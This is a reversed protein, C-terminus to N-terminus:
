YSIACSVSAWSVTLNAEEQIKVVTPAVPPNGYQVLLGTDSATSISTFDLTNEAQIKVLISDGEALNFPSALLSFTNLFCTQALV